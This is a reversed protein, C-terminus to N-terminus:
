LQSIEHIAKAMESILGPDKEAANGIVIINAGARCNEAAKEPTKIGGGVILPVHIQRSVTEIMAGTIPEGAGSGADMYILKMGLMEGAMATCMAIDPKNHPIPTTNSMYEVTTPTGSNILMYGTPLIEIGAQKLMPAAIVHRGILMEANRGSIVSLFLIADAHKSVQYISGPFIIVPGGFAAKIQLVYQDLEQSVLLSGGIFIYSAGSNRALEATEIAQFPTVKDPDILIALSKKGSSRDESISTIINSPNM